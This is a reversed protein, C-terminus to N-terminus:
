IWTGSGLGVCETAHETYGGREQKPGNHHRPTSTPGMDGLVIKDSSTSTLMVCLLATAESAVVPLAAPQSSYWQAILVTYQIM